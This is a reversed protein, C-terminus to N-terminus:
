LYDCIQVFYCKRIEVCKRKRGQTGYFGITVLNIIRVGSTFWPPPSSERAYEKKCTLGFVTIPIRPIRGASIQNWSLGKGTDMCSFYTSRLDTYSAFGNQNDPLLVFVKAAFAAKGSCGLMYILLASLHTGLFYKTNLM